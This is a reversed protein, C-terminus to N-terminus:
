AIRLMKLKRRLAAVGIQLVAMIPKRLALDAFTLVDMSESGPAPSRQSEIYAVIFSGSHFVIARFINTLRNLYDTDQM